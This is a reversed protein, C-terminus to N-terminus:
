PNKINQLSLIICAHSFDNKTIQLKEAIDAVLYIHKKNKDLQRAQKVLNLSIDIGTYPIEPPLRRALVGQGCALDLLSSSKELNLLRLSGPLIVQQHYYHGEKGVIKDYWDSVKQWSTGSNNM